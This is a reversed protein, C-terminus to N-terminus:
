FTTYPLSNVESAHMINRKLWIEDNRCWEQNGRQLMLQQNKKRINKNPKELSSRHSPPRKEIAIKLLSM